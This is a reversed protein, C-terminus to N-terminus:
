IGILGADSCAHYIIAVYNENAPHFCMTASFGINGLEIKSILHGAPMPSSVAEREAEM